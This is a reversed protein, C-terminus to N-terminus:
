DTVLLYRGNGEVIDYLYIPGGTCNDKTAAYRVAAAATCGFDLAALAWDGGSGYGDNFTTPLVYLKSDVNYFAQVVQDPTVIIASFRERTWKTENNLYAAMIFELDVISGAIFFHYGDREYHKEHNDSVIRTGMTARSDVAIQKTKHCYVITTM